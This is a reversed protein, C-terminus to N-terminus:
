KAKGTATLVPKKLREQKHLDGTKPEKKVTDKLTQKLKSHCPLHANTILLPLRSVAHIM